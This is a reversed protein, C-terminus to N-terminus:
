AGGLICKWQGRGFCVSLGLGSNDVATTHIAQSRVPALLGALAIDGPRVGVSDRRGPLQTQASAVSALSTALLAIFAIKSMEDGRFCSPKGFTTGTLQEM